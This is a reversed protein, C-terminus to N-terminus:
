DKEEKGAASKDKKLEASAEQLKVKTKDPLGYAQNTIVLNGSKLGSTVQVMGAHLDVIGLKVEREHAVDGEVVLVITKGTEDKVVATQPVALVNEAHQTKIEVKASSGPRLFRDKNNAKVWVEVTTSNSDLAPSILTVKAAVPEDLGATQIEAEDGVKLRSAQTQSIHAKGIIFSIDMVTVLPAGTSVMEGAFSPRDTVIGNIPSRIETYKLQARAGEFKGRAQALQATASQLSAKHGVANLSALHQDALEFQSKAQVYAVQAADLDKRPLAGQEFLSKRSEILKTQADLNERTQQRDLEAKRLEEPIGARTSTTYAAQAQELGGHNETVAATIDANELTALLQGQKVRDGRQVYLKSVPSSIKPTIAAQQVPFLVAEATINETLTTGEVKVAQVSVIPEVEKEPSRCGAVFLLSTLLTILIFQSAPKLITM